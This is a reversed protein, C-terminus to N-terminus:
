PYRYGRKLKRELHFQKEQLADQFSAHFVTRTQGFHGIRGWNRTLAIGGFLTPEIRLQYFRAMNAAADIRILYVPDDCIDM